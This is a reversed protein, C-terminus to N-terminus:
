RKHSRSLDTGSTFSVHNNITPGTNYVTCHMFQPPTSVQLFFHLFSISLQPSRKMHRLPHACTLPCADLLPQIGENICQKDSRSTQGGKSLQALCKGFGQACRPDGRVAGGPLLRVTVGTITVGSTLLRKKKGGM